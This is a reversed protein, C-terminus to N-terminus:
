EMFKSHEIFTIKLAFPLSKPYNSELYSRVDRYCFVNQECVLKYRIPKTPSGNKLHSSIRKSQTKVTWVATMRRFVIKSNMNLLARILKICTATASTRPSLTKIIYNIDPRTTVINGQTEFTGLKIEPM